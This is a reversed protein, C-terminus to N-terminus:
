TLGLESALWAAQADREAAYESEGGAVEAARAAIYGLLAVQGRAANAAADDAYGSLREDSKARDRTRDLCAEAFRAGAAANWADIRRLLRGREAVVKHREERVDGGLEGEWLEAGIWYPLDRVRCAHVGRTCLSMGDGEVWEGVPWTFYSFPGIGGARLFKYARM